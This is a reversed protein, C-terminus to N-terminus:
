APDLKNKISELYHEGYAAQAITFSFNYMPMEFRSGQLKQTMVAPQIGMLSKSDGIIMSHQPPSIFKNYFYDVYAGYYELFLVVITSVTVAFLLIKLFFSKM